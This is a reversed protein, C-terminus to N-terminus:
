FREFGKEIGILEGIITKLALCLVVLMTKGSSIEASEIKLMREMAGTIAIFLISIGCAKNLMEQQESKFFRWTFHGVLNGTVISISNIITGLGIIGM